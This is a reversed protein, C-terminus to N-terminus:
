MGLNMLCDRLFVVNLFQSIISIMNGELANMANPRNLQIVGANAVKSVLVANEPM